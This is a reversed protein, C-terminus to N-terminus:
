AQTVGLRESIVQNVSKNKYKATIDRKIDPLFMLASLNQLRKFSHDIQSTQLPTLLLGRYVIEKYVEKIVEAQESAYSFEDFLMCIQVLTENSVLYPDDCEEKIKM